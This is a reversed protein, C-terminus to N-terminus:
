FIWRFPIVCGKATVHSVTFRVGLGNLAYATLLDVARGFERKANRAWETRRVPLPSFLNTLTITSGKSRASPSTEILNGTNDYVLKRAASDGNAATVVTLGGESLACLSALAEGRFGFSSVAVIDGFDQIKSTHHSKAITGHILLHQMSHSPSIGLFPADAESIGSGNDSVSVSDLGHNKFCVSITSSEADLANEVLEKL